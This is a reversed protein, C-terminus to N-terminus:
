IEWTIPLMLQEFGKVHGVRVRDAFAHSGYQATGVISGSQDIALMHCTEGNVAAVLWLHTAANRGGKFRYLSGVMPECEFVSSPASNLDLKM